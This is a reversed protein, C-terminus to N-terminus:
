PRAAHGSPFPPSTLVAAAVVREPAPTGLLHSTSMAIVPVSEMIMSSAVTTLTASGDM